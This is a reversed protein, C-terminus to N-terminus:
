SHIILKALPAVGPDPFLQHLRESLAQPHLSSTLRRGTSPNDITLRDFRGLTSAEMAVITALFDTSAFPVQEHVRHAQQEFHHHM